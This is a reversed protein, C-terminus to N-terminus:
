LTQHQRRQQCKCDAWKTANLGSDLCYAMGAAAEAGARQLAQEARGAHHLASHEFEAARQVLRRKDKENEKLLVNAEM